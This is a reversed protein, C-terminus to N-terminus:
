GNLEPLLKLAKKENKVSQKWHHRANKLSNMFAHIDHIPAKNEMCDMLDSYEKKARDDGYADLFLDLRAPGSETYIMDLWRMTVRLTLVSDGSRAAKIIRHVYSVENERRSRKWSKLISRLKGTFILTIVLVLGIAGLIILWIPLPKKQQQLDEAAPIGALEFKKGPLEIQKLETNEIDWWYFVIVPINFKGPQEFVYTVKEIREGSLTGRDTKDSVDPEGPYVGIGEMKQFELPTFAMGSIDEAKFTITRRIADGVKVPTTDPEWKQEATLATTSIIGSIGDAGPPIKVNYEVVPTSLRRIKNVSDVGWAKVEVDVPFPPVSIKGAIQPFILSEYRQGTYTDGNITESLRTGQTEVRLMYAGSIDADGSKKIQAWGDRALIDVHMVTKQGVWVEDPAVSTRIIVDENACVPSNFLLTIACFILLFIIDRYACNSKKNTIIHKNV